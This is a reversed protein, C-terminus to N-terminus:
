GSTLFNMKSSTLGPKKYGKEFSYVTYLINQNQVKSWKFKLYNIVNRRVTVTWKFTKSWFNQDGFTLTLTLVKRKQQPWVTFHLQEQLWKNTVHKKYWIDRTWPWKNHGWWWIYSLGIPVGKDMLWDVNQQLMIIWCSKLRSVEYKMYLQLVMQLNQPGFTLMMSVIYIIRGCKSTLNLLGSLWFGKLRSVEYKMCLHLVLLLFVSNNQPLFTLTLTVYEAVSPQYSM